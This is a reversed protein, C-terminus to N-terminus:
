AAEQAIRSAAADLDVADAGDASVEAILEAFVGEQGVLGRYARAKDGRYPRAAEREIVRRAIAAAIAGVDLPDSATQDFDFPDWEPASQELMRRAALALPLASELSNHPQGRPTTITAGLDDASVIQTLLEDTRAVVGVRVTDPDVEFLRQAVARVDGTLVPSDVDVLVFRARLDLYSFVVTPGEAADSDVEVQVREDVASLVNEITSVDIAATFSDPILMSALETDALLAEVSPRSAYPDIGRGAELTDILRQARDHDQANLHDLSPREAVGELYDLFALIVRDVPDIDNSM